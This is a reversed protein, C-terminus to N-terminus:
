QNNFGLYVGSASDTFPTSINTGRSPMYTGISPGYLNPNYSSGYASGASPLLGANINGYGSPYGGYNIPAMPVNQVNSQGARGGLIDLYRDNYNKQDTLATENSKAMGFNSLAGSLTTFVNGAAM